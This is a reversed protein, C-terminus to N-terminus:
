VIVNPKVPMTNILDEAEVLRGARSLLDVVCGYHEVKPFIGYRKDMMNFYELGKDVLGVHTCATLLGLFTIDNPKVEHETMKNFCGFAEDVHGNM